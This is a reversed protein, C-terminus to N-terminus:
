VTEKVFEDFIIPIQRVFLDLAMGAVERMQPHAAPSTRLRFFHRWERLNASMVIETKLSNPLVSRAIQPTAGEKLMQLYSYEAGMMAKEWNDKNVACMGPPEIVVIEDGYRCYRTSEQTFSAIRHRVLEHSVGRDCIIRVSLIVHELVSEHGRNILNKVFAESSTATAREESKYATRGAMEIRHLVETGSPLYQAWEVSQKVIKM